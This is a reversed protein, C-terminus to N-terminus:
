KQWDYAAMKEAEIQFITTLTHLAFTPGTLHPVHKIRTSHSPVHSYPWNKSEDTSLLLHLFQSNLWLEKEGCAIM